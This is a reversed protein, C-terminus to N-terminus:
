SINIFFRMQLQWVRIRSTILQPGSHAVRMRLLFALREMVICEPVEWVCTVIRGAENVGTPTRSM